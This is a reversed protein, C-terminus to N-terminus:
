VLSKKQVWQVRYDSRVTSFSVAISFLLFESRSFFSPRISSKSRTSIENCKMGAVRSEMKLKKINQATIKVWPM